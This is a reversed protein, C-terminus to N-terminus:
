SRLRWDKSIDRGSEPTRSGSGNENGSGSGGGRGRRTRGEVPTLGGVDDGVVWSVQGRAHGRERELGTPLEYVRGREGADMEHVRAGLDVKSTSNWPSEMECVGSPSLMEHIQTDGIEVPKGNRRSDLEALSAAAATGWKAADTGAAHDTSLTSGKAEDGALEATEKRQLRARRRRRFVFFVVLLLVVLVAAGAITGALAGKGIGVADPNHVGDNASGYRSDEPPEIAVAHTEPMPDQWPVQGVTFNRREHDVVLYAEQLLVRGLVYQSQNAARRIPFYNTANPFWPYSAQLDFAAYPLKINASPGSDYRTNGFKINITPNLSLMEAHMTSNILYLDTTPDYTLGFASAFLDCVDSPLWLHPITSDIVTMHGGSSTMSAVGLLSNSAVISQVGLTFPTSSSSSFPASLSTLTPLRTSDYGGLVLSGPVKKSRYSAGATYGYSLSPISGDQRLHTLFPPIPDDSSSFSPYMTGLGLIGMYFDKDAIGAVVQHGWSKYGAGQPTGLGVTDYGYIGNATYNLGEELSLGYLGIEQWTTSENKLFGLSTAGNFPEAGRTEACNSPDNSTCGEPVPVWTDSGATSPLVRFSQPPTGVTVFFTSWAGDNGDWTGTNPVVFPSAMSPASTASRPFSL